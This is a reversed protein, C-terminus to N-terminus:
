AAGEYKWVYGGATKCRNRLCDPITKIGLMDKAETASDWRKIIDGNLSLQLIPKMTKQRRKEIAEPNIKRGKLALSMKQKMESSFVRTRGFAAIKEKTLPNNCNEKRTVWQLNEVRNDTRDTNIHDIESKNDPNPIFAQAVLRHVLYIQQKGEKSLLVKMYNNPDPVITLVKGKMLRSINMKTAIIRNLSKVRGLNSVQYLGEYGEIDKWIEEM